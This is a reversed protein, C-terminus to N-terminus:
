EIRMTLSWRDCATLDFGHKHAFLGWASTFLPLLYFVHFLLGFFVVFFCLVPQESAIVELTDEVNERKRGAGRTRRTEERRTPRNPPFVRRQVNM